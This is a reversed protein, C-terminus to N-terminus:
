RIKPSHPFPIIFKGSFGKSRLSAIIEEVFNWALIFIYDPNSQLGEELSVIPIRMGPTFFGQKRPNNDIVAQLISRDLNCFNMYTSSRASAGFGVIKKTGITQVLEFTAKKHELCRTAFEHWPEASAIGLSQEKQQLAEHERTSPRNKLSFSVVLSGGSIPSQEVHFIHLGHKKLLYSMSHLSFYCLHEHYISDYHLEGLIKSADHFEIIGISNETMISAIGQIVDHLESVHPIVNRAFVLDPAGYTKLVHEAVAQNWFLPLTPIGRRTADTAINEAPDIGLIDIGAEAFPALFTGDNSAIEVVKRVPHPQCQALARQFFVDAYNRTTEATGSVWFYNKFLIEKNITDLLQVLGSEPCFGIQLPFTKEPTEPAALLANALPQSGLDLIPELTESDSIRCRQITKFQNQIM